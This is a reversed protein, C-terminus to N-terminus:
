KSKRQLKKLEDLFEQTKKNINKQLKKFEDKMEQRRKEILKFHDKLLEVPKRM